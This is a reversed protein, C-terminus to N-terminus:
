LTICALLMLKLCWFSTTVQMAAALILPWGPPVVAVPHGNFTYGQGLALSRGIALYADSDSVPVWYPNILPVLLSVVTVMTVLWLAWDSLRPNKSLFSTIRSRVARRAHAPREVLRAPSSPAERGLRSATLADLAVGINRIM